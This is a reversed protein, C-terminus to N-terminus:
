RGGRPPRRTYRFLRVSRPKLDNAEAVENRSSGPMV